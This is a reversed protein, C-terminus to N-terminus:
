IRSGKLYDDIRDYAVPKLNNNIDLLGELAGESLMREIAKGTALKSHGWRRLAPGYMAVLSEVVTKIVASNGGEKAEVEVEHHRIEQGGFHYVVSDIALEALVSDNAEGKVINRVRRHSERDQIPELGLSAMVDLPHVDDLDQRQPLIKIGRNVLEKVVRTLADKSWLVEIELREVGGEWDTPQSPGKLTVWRMTGIERVRLALEQTQLARDPTDLYLDHIIQPDQPLLRYNGIAALGAIQSAVIQPEESWIILAAEIERFRIEDPKPREKDYRWKVYIFQVIWTAIFGVLSPLVIGLGPHSYASLACLAALILSIALAMMQGPKGRGLSFIETLKNMLREKDYRNRVYIFIGIWATIFGLLAVPWINWEPYSLAFLACFAAVILSNVLSVTEVLGGTGLSFIHNWKKERCPKDDRPEYYLYPLIQQDRAFYARIRGMARLHEHSVLNRRILRMLTVVGFLLLAGLGNFFIPDVIRESGETELWFGEKRIALAALVATTVTIFFNVRTEGVQESRRFEDKHNQYEALLFSVSHGKPEGAKQHGM